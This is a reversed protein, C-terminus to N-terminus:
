LLKSSLCLGRLALVDQFLGAGTFSSVAIVYSHDVLSAHDTSHGSSSAHPEAKLSTFPSAPHAQESASPVICKSTSEKLPSNANEDLTSRGSGTVFMKRTQRFAVDKSTGIMDDSESQACLPRAPAFGDAALLAGFQTTSLKTSIAKTSVHLRTVCPRRIRGPAIDSVPCLRM